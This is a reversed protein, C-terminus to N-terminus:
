VIGNRMAYAVAATRSPVELKGLINNIHTAVTRPSVYLAHAIQSTSNGQALLRLIELERATLNHEMTETPIELPPFPQQRGALERALMLLRRSFASFDYQQGLAAHHDFQSDGLANRAASRFPALYRKMSGTYPSDITDRLSEDAALLEAVQAHADRRSYMEIMLHACELLSHRDEFKTLTRLSELLYRCAAPEDDWALALHAMGHLAIGELAEGGANRLLVIAEALSDHALTYDGLERAAEGLNILTPPLDRTNNMKRQLDLATLLYQEAREYQELEVYLAGLNCAGIALAVHDSLRELIIQAEEWYRSAQELEARFYSVVALNSLGVALAREDGIQQAIAIAQQHHIVAIDYDGRDHAVTGLGILARNEDQLSGLAAALDRAQRFCDEATALDRQDEALYGSAILARSRYQATGHGTVKLAQELWARSETILSRASFFRWLAGGIRLVIDERENALAWEVATRINDLEADLLSMWTNQESGVLKPEAAEALGVIYMAHDYRAAGSEGGERLQELGFDRITELMHYRATDSVTSMPRVLSHDVLESILDYSDHDGEMKRVSAEVAELSFSGTFASLRRFLRQSDRGLLDYSWCVAQRMTHMRSELYHREGGGLVDLRNSLRALLAETTLINTRAAALEIALPLGDLRRCIAAITRMNGDDLSFGPDVARARDVFLEVAGSALIVDRAHVDPGPVDLPALPYLQEGGIELPARSTALVRLGSCRALVRGLTPGVATVQELNDLVILARVDTLRSILFDEYGEYSDSFLGLAQGVTPLVLHPDRVAALRVFVVQQDERDAFLSALHLALRTKGVGGPGTMTVLRYASDTLMHALESVERARSVLPTVVVPISQHSNLIETSASM